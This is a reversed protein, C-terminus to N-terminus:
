GNAPFAMSVRAAAPRSSAAQAYIARAAALEDGELELRPPRVRAFGAGAEQQMQKILQVFKPVTDMRLLPLFWRYLERTEHKRGATALEFLDVSERPFANVLGAIWGVAGAEIGEVIADDVGVFIALREGTLAHIATVRRVDTSSEKVAALNAFELALERIQEPLFDTGYAVPNNYLMAPLPTAALIAAVHAKMERWDGKYVYPPLIMLGQAGEDAAARALAVAEATSLASIAAVAQPAAAVATRVIAIKEDFTLTAAEGLSGLCVIGSCGNACLWRAHRALFEHDVKLAEDFSTTIAPM